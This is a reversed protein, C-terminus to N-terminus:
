DCGLVRGAKGIFSSAAEIYASKAVEYAEKSGRDERNKALAAHAEVMEDRAAMARDYGDALAEISELKKIAQEYHDAKEISFDAEEARGEQRQIPANHRATDLAIELVAIAHHM